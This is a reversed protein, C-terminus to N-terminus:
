LVISLITPFVCDPVIQKLQNRPSGPIQMLSSVIWAPQTRFALFGAIAWLWNPNSHLKWVVFSQVLIGPRGCDSGLDSRNGHSWGGSRPAISGFIVGILVILVSQLQIAFNCLIAFLDIPNCRCYVIRSGNSPIAPRDLFRLLTNWDLCLESPNCTFGCGIGIRVAISMLNWFSQSVPVSQWAISHNCWFGQIDVFQYCDRGIAGLIPRGDCDAKFRLAVLRPVAIVACDKGIGHLGSSQPPIAYKICDLHFGTEFRWVPLGDRGIRDQCLWVRNSNSQLVAFSQLTIPLIGNSNFPNYLLWCFWGCNLM